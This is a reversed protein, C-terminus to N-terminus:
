GGSTRWYSAMLETAWPPQMVDGRPLFERMVPKIDVVPTGEVADLEAVV